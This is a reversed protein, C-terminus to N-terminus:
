VLRWLNRGKSMDPLRAGPTCQARGNLEGTSQKPVAEPCPLSLARFVESLERFISLKPSERNVRVLDVSPYSKPNSVSPRWRRLSTLISSFVPIDLKAGRAGQPKPQGAIRLLTELM